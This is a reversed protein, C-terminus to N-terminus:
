IQLPKPGIFVSCRNSGDDIGVSLYLETRSNYENGNEDLMVYYWGNKIGVASSCDCDITETGYNFLSLNPTCKTEEMEQIEEHLKILGNCKINSGANDGCTELLYKNGDFRISLIKKDNGSYATCNQPDAKECQKIVSESTPTVECIYYYDDDCDLGPPPELCNLNPKNGTNGDCGCNSNPILEGESCYYSKDEFCYYDGNTCCQSSTVPEGINGCLYYDSDDPKVCNRINSVNDSMSVLKDTSGFKCNVQYNDGCSCELDCKGDADCTNDPCYEPCRKSTECKKSTANCDAPGCDQVQEWSGNANCVKLVKEDCKYDGEKCEAGQNKCVDGNCGALCVQTEVWLNDVCHYERDNKCRNEDDKCEHNCATREPNCGEECLREVNWGGDNCVELANIDCKKTGDVCSPKVENDACKELKNDCGYECEEKVRQKGKDTTLLIEYGSKDIKEVCQQHNYCKDGECLICKKIGALEELDDNIETWRGNICIEPGNEGECRV